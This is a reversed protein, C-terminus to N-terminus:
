LRRISSYSIRKIRPNIRNHAYNMAEKFCADTPADIRRQRQLHSAAAFIGGALASNGGFSRRKELVIVKAGMETAAVAAALGTGGGGVIAIETELNETNLNSRPSM